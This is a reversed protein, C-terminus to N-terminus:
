YTIARGSFRTRDSVESIHGDVNRLPVVVRIKHQVQIGHIDVDQVCDSLRNPIDLRKTVAWGEQSTGELMDQWDHDRSVQFDWTSVIRETQHKRSHFLPRNQVHCERFEMLTVSFRELKLGKVLPILKMELMLSDGLTTAGTSLKVSYNVKNLWTREIPLSQMMELADPSPTRYVLLRKQTYLDRTLKTRSITAKLRYSIRAEPMGETTEAINGPLTYEFPWEYNGALLTTSTDRSGIFSPWKYQLVTAKHILPKPEAWRKVADMLVLDPRRGYVRDSTLYVAVPQSVFSM